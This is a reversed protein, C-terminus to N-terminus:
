VFVWGWSVWEVALSMYAPRIGAAPIYKKCRRYIHHVIGGPIHFSPCSSRASGSLEVPSLVKFRDFLIEPMSATAARAPENTIVVVWAPPILM